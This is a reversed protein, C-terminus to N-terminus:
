SPLAWLVMQIIGMVLALGVMSVFMFLDAYAVSFSRSRLILLFMRTASMVASISLRICICTLVVGIWIRLVLDARGLVGISYAMSNWKAPDPEMRQVAVFGRWPMWVLCLYSCLLITRFGLRMARTILSTSQHWKFQLAADALTLLLVANGIAGTYAFPEVFHLFANM